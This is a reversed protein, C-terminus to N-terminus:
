VLDICELGAEEGLFRSAIAEFRPTLDTLLARHRPPTPSDAELGLERLRRALAEAVSQASDVLRVGEGAVRGLLPALLPYHTCGLVLTDIKARLLPALYRTAVQETVPDDIWGEEVLPVLLPCAQSHVELEPRLSRLALEYAGSRITSETAIVGVRGGSVECARQAGPQLVGFLPVPASLSPLALASASNCAVVIAKVQLAVLFDVNRQSYRSVTQASKTGYPLRATDGLYVISEGPLRRRLAAVVTLGGVGSDFVGIASV